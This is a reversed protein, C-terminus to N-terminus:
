GSLALPMFLAREEISLPALRMWLDRKKVYLEERAGEDSERKLSLEEPNPSRRAVEAVTHALTKVLRELLEIARGTALVDDRDISLGLLHGRRDLPGNAARRMNEWLSLVRRRDTEEVLMPEAREGTELPRSVEVVLNGQEMRSDFVYQDLDSAKKRLRIQAREEAFTFGGVLYDDLRVPELREERSFLGRKLGVMMELDTGFDGARRPTQWEPVLDTALSFSAAIGEPHLLDASMAPHGDVLEMVITAALIPLRGLVFFAELATRLEEGLRGLERALSQEDMEIRSTATRHAEDISRSAAERVRGAYDPALEGALRM